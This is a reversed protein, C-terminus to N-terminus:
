ACTRERENGPLDNQRYDAFQSEAVSSKHHYQRGTNVKTHVL